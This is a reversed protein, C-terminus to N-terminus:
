LHAAQLLSYAVQLCFKGAELILVIHENRRNALVQQIWNAFRREGLSRLRGAFGV